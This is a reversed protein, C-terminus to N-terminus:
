YIKATEDGRLVRLAGLALARMEEEGPFVFVPGLHAIRQKILEVFRESKAVGGTLAIGDVEGFLVTSMAGIEKAIQYAMAEYILKAEADGKKEIRDEVVRLDHTGLYAVMGGHGKILQKMEPYTYTGSFAVKILDGIPV